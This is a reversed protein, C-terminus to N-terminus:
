QRNMYHLRVREEFCKDSSIICECDMKSLVYVEVDTKARVTEPILEHSIATIRGFREGVQLDRPPSGARFAEAAGRGLVYACDGTEGERVIVTGPGHYEITMRDAIRALTSASLNALEKVQALAKCIRISLDPRVNSIIRGGVMNVIRDARDILRQDHTVILITSGVPGQALQHLMNMVLEGSEADLAATPEDALVLEPDNVLARAIAVRQRQGGSLRAPTYDLRDGLGLRTLLATCRVDMEAVGAPHLATAMRVNEMASLSSFLNHHQFIFGIHRRLKVQDVATMGRLERNLIRVSGDQVHRLAGILTLLTTKGSGSPGTMIVVEGKGIELQVDFLVQSRSEGAGFHHNVGHIGVVPQAAVAMSEIVVSM